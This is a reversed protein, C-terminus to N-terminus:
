QEGPRVVSSAHWHGVFRTSLGSVTLFIAIGLLSSALAAAFLLAIQMQTAAQIIVYGLGGRGGGIGAVFEGVIAGIVALGASIKMGVFIDPLAHPFRLKWTVSWRSAGYLRMLTMLGPDTSIFGFNANSIMPFLAILFSITVVAKLGAGVWIVILPAIAVIPITQLIVAYPYLSKEIIKSQSMILAAGVGVVVSAVYGLVAESFTQFTAGWLEQRYLWAAKVVDQPSPVLYSPINLWSIVAQWLGLAMVLVGLPWMLSSWKERISVTRNM